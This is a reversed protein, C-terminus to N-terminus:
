EKSKQSEKLNKLYELFFALFVGAFLSIFFASTINKRITPRIKSLPVKPPDIVKFAFNEKVEALMSTEIQRAILYYIKQQILPDANMNVQSELYKKNTDAVRKAESSMYDTLETLIYTLIKASMEPDNYEASLEIVGERKNDRAKFINNRMYNITAWIKENEKKAKIDKGLLVPVLNYKKIVKEMLINSNLLAIIEAVNSTQPSTIGFRSAISAMSSQQQGSSVHMIIAQSRYIKPSLFSVIGTTAISIIVIIIILKKHKIITNIYGSFNIEDNYEESDVM